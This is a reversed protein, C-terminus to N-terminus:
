AARVDTVFHSVERTLQEAQRTLLAAAALVEGAAAGTEHAAQSVSSITVTVDRTSTATHQVNRAIEATAAGQEQVAAAITSAIVSVENITGGIAGIAQVVENTASQIQAIQTGVAQTANATQNALNKVESAVVAFGKGADGARAAEITANLALLNTQAAIGTILQVVDGIKQAGEALARAINDTRRADDVAQRTIKASQEVQRSIEHISASLQEAAAAVAHVGESAQEAAVAVTTAQVNTHTATASLSQATAQLEAAGSSLMAALSGIKGEFADATHNMATKQAAGATSKAAAQEAVMREIAIANDKFVRASRAMEGIEDRRGTEPIDVAHADVALSKLAVAIRGLPRTISRALLVSVIIGLLLGAITLGYLISRGTRIEAIQRAEAAAARTVGADRVTHAIASIAEGEGQSWAILRAERAEAVHMTQGILKEWDDIDAQAHRMTATTTPDQTAAAAQQLNARLSTLADAIHTANDLSLDTRYRAAFLDAATLSQQADALLVVSALAGRSAEAARAQVLEAGIQRSAAVLSVDNLRAEDAYLGKMVGWSATYAATANLLTPIDDRTHGAKGMAQVQGAMPGFEALLTDAQRAFDPNMSRVWQNVRVQLRAIQLELGSGASRQAVALRFEGVQREIGDIVMWSSVAMGVLIALTLGFGVGIRARVSLSM